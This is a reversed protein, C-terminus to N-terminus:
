EGARRLILFEVRRNKARNQTTLNPVIPKDMGYGKAVLRDREVGAQVLWEKVADARRQSLDLNHDPTGVDDTHGQVEVQLLEPNRMIVDAIETLLPESRAEINATDTTFFISGRIKIRDKQV